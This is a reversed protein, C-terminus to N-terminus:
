RPMLLTPLGKQRLARPVKDLDALPVESADVPDTLHSLGQLQNHAALCPSMKAHAITRTPITQANLADHAPRRTDDM